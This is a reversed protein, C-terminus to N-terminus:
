TLEELLLFVVKLCQMLLATMQKLVILLQEVWSNDKGQYM